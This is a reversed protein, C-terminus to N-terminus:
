FRGALGLIFQELGDSPASADEADPMRGFSWNAFRQAEITDERLIQLARHRPDTIIAEMRALTLRRPGELVGYFRGGGFILLGTLGRAANNRASARAIDTLDAAYLARTAASLYM